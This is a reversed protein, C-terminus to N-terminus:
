RGGGASVLNLMHNGDDALHAAITQPPAPQNPVRAASFTRLVMLVVIGAIPSWSRLGRAKTTGQEPLATMRGAGGHDETTIM